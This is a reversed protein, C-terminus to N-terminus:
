SYGMRMNNWNTIILVVVNTLITVGLYLLAWPDLKIKKRWSEPFAIVFFFFWFGGCLLLTDLIILSLLLLM